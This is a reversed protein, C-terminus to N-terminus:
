HKFYNVEQIKKTKAGFNKSKNMLKWFEPVCSEDEGAAPLFICM